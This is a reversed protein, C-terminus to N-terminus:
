RVREDLPPPRFAGLEQFGVPPTAVPFRVTFTTPGGPASSVSIRGGHAMIVRRAISLGVGSGGERKSFGPDFIRRRDALDIGAGRDTVAVEMWRNGERWRVAV